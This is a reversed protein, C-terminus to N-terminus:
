FYVPGASVLRLLLGWRSRRDIHLRGHDPELDICNHGPLILSQIKVWQRTKFSVLTIIPIFWM